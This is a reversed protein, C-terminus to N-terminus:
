WRYSLATHWIANSARRISTAHSPASSCKSKSTSVRPSHFLPRAPTSTRKKGWLRCLWRAAAGFGGFSGTRRSQLPNRGCRPCNLCDEAVLAAGFAAARGVTPFGLPPDPPFIFHNEGRRSEAAKSARFRGGVRMFWLACIMRAALCGEGWLFDGGVLLFGGIKRTYILM